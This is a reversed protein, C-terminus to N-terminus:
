DCGCGGADADECCSRKMAPECCVELEQPTCCATAPAHAPGSDPLQPADTQAGLPQAGLTHVDLTPHADRLMPNESM